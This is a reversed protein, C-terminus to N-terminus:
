REWWSKKKFKFEKIELNEIRNTLTNLLKRIEADKQNISIKQELLELITKQKFMQSDERVWDLWQVTFFLAIIIGIIFHFERNKVFDKFQQWEKKM